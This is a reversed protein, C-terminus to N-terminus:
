DVLRVARTVGDRGILLDAKVLDDDNELPVAVGLAFLASRKMEVRVIHGGSATELPDGTYSVPHFEDMPVSERRPRPRRSQMEPEPDTATRAAAKEIRFSDKAARVASPKESNPQPPFGALAAGPDAIDPSKTSIKKEPKATGATYSPPQQYRVGWVIALAVVAFSGVASVAKWPTLISVGGRPRKEAEAVKRMVGSFLDPNAVIKEIEERGALPPPSCLRRAVLDLTKNDIKRKM